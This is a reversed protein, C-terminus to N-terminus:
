DRKPPAGESAPPPLEISRQYRGYSDKTDFAYEYLVIGGLSRSLQGLYFLFANPAAGFLHLRGGREELRRQRIRHILAEALRLAHQGGRVSQQGPEPAIAADVIASVALGEQEIYARAEAVAPRSISVALAVDPSDAPLGIDHRKQWLNSEPGSDDDPHWGMPRGMTRQEVYVDLGRKAELLWGAAFAISQHVALDLYLSRNPDVSELLFERLDPFVKEQWWRPERIARGTFSTPDFYSTLERVADCEKEMQARWIDSQRGSFSLLGLRVPAKDVKSYSSVLGDYLRAFQRNMGDGEQWGSFDLVNYEEIQRRLEAPWPCSKWADDLAIPCLVDRPNGEERYRWELRTAKIVERQVWDSEVSRESLVLLVLPNMMLARDIQRELRGAKMDHVDRWYRVGKEGLRNELAEVFPADEWTYSIFVRVVGISQQKRRIRTLDYLTTVTEDDGIEPNWLKAIEIEWDSLGCKKLFAPPIQGRSRELASTSIHAPGYHAVSDLDKVGRLDVNAFVTGNLRARDLRAGSLDVGNLHTGSLDTDRLDAGRLDADSLDVGSLNAGRLTAGRLDAGGLVARALCAQTLDAGSLNALSLDANRLVAGRLGPRVREDDERWQNWAEVGALLIEASAAATFRFLSQRISWFDSASSRFVRWDNRHLAMLLPAAANGAAVDRKQNLYFFYEQLWNTDGHRQAGGYVYFLSSREAAQLTRLLAGVPPEEPDLQSLDIQTPVLGGSRANEVLLEGLFLEATPDAVEIAFFQFGTALDLADALQAWETRNESRERWRRRVEAVLVDSEVLVGGSDREM